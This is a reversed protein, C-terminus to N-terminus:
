AYFFNIIPTGGSPVANLYLGTSFFIGDLDISTGAVTTSAGSVTWILNAAAATGSTLCDNLTWAGGTGAGIVVARILRGPGTKILGTTTVNLTSTTSGRSTLLGTGVQADLTLPSFATKGFIKAILANLPGQSM